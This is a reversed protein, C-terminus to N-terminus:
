KIWNDFSDIKNKFIMDRFIGSTAGYNKNFNLELKNFGDITIYPYIGLYEQGKYETDNNNKKIPLIAVRGKHGDFYGLEWPMWISRISNETTVFILSKSKNMRNKLTQATNTNVQRRDLQKDDIWDIYVSYGMEELSIKIGLVLEEDLKSHSLFIDYDNNESELEQNSELIISDLNMSKLSVTTKAKNRVESEIFFAM